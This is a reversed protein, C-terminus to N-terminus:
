NRVGTLRAAFSQGFQVRGPLESHYNGSNTSCSFFMYRGFSGLCDLGTVPEQNDSRSLFNSCKLFPDLLWRRGPLSFYCIASLLNADPVRLIAFNSFRFDAIRFGCEMISQSNAIENTCPLKTMM